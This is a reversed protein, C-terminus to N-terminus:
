EKSILKQMPSFQRNDDDIFVEVDFSKEYLLRAIAFGDGGNNGNGCFIFFKDIRNFNIEIWDACSRAAREMLNISSIGKEITASDCEKIQQATLIKMEPIYIDDFKIM